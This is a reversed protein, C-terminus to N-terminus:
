VPATPKNRQVLTPDEDEDEVDSDPKEYVPLDDDSETGDIIEQVLPTKSATSVKLKVKVSDAPLLKQEPRSIFGQTEIPSIGKLDDIVGISDHTDLLSRYWLGDAAEAKSMSFVIRKNKPDVLESVASGIVM